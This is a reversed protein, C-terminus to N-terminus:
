DKGQIKDLVKRILDISYGRQNLKSAVKHRLVVERSLRQYNDKHQYIRDWRKCEELWLKNGLKDCQEHEELDSYVQHIVENALDIDLGRNILERKIKGRSSVKKRVTCYSLGLSKDNLYGWDSLRIIAADIEKESFGKIVLRNELESRTLARRSLITLAVELASKM